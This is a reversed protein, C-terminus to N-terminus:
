QQEFFCRFMINNKNFLHILLYRTKSKKIKISICIAQKANMDSVTNQFSLFTSTVDSGRSSRVLLMEFHTCWAFFTATLYVLLFSMHLTSFDVRIFSTRWVFHKNYFLCGLAERCVSVM